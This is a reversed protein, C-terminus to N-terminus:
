VLIWCHECASQCHTSFDCAPRSVDAANRPLSSNLLSTSCNGNPIPKEGLSDLEKLLKEHVDLQQHIQYFAWALTTSTTEHGAFLITLLEDRLEEDTMAQGQEDRAAMMLSLVDTRGQNEGTRREEIEAQLLNHVQRQRQKM